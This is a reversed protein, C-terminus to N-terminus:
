RAAMLLWLISGDLLGLGGESQSNEETRKAFGFVCFGLIQGGDEAECAVMRLIFKSWQDM